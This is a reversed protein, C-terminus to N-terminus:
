SVDNEFLTRDGFRALYSKLRLKRATNASSMYRVTGFIEREPGWARDFRGFCWFIGSYSNPNRGDIAYKNNLHILSEVAERPSESWELVKKGWLMRLYNHMEGTEALQRQAANWLADYTRGAELDALSYVPSRADPAHRRLTALAWAPLSEYEAYDPRHRCFHYGVERWTVLQDLFGEASASMRWWGARAGTASRAVDEPAWREADAIASFVQHASIHGFHLYPSLGSTARDDPDNRKESYTLLQQHLFADLRSEAAASGGRLSVSPVSHDIPLSRLAKPEGELLAAPAREWTRSGDKPLLEELEPLDLSGLPAPSPFHELHSPLNKQLFRRFVYATPAAADTTSLPLLGNADVVELRCEVQAAAADVMRPLFFCPFDDTVIVCARRSLARLLGKGAGREPEVYPFYLVNRGAARQANDAMGELVFRHLRESAWRYDCRLAELVVLPKGLEKAWEIARDLAFNWTLRRQAIMWYLVFEGGARAPRDVRIELRDAPIRSPDPRSM